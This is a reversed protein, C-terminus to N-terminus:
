GCVIRGEQPAWEVKKKHIVGTRTYIYVLHTIYMHIHM